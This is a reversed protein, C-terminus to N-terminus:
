CCGVSNSNFDLETIVFVSSTLRGFLISQRMIFPLTEVYFVGFPQSQASRFSRAISASFAHFSFYLTIGGGGWVCVFDAAAPLGSMFYKSLRQLSIKKASAKKMKWNFSYPCLSWVEMAGM